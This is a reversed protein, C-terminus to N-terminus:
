YEWRFSPFWGLTTSCVLDWCQPQPLLIM